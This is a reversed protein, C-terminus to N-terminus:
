EYKLHPLVKKIDQSRDIAYSVNKTEIMKIKIGNDLLRLIEINELAENKSKNKKIGYLNLVEKPFSYICVQKYAKKFNEEFPVPLRSMYLLNDKHDTIVKPIDQSKFEKDSNIQKMFNYVINPRKKVLKLLKKIDKHDILPEDGQINIYVDANLIKRCEAIRDTGTKCKPSTMIVNQTFSKCHDLILKSDTAIFIDERDLSMMAKDWVRRIMTKGKLKILPKGPFRTSKFRAPIILKIKM